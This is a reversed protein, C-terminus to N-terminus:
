SCCVTGVELCPSGEAAVFQKQLTSFYLLFFKYSIYITKKWNIIWPKFNQFNELDMFYSGVKSANKFTEPCYLDKAPGPVM